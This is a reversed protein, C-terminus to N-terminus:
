KAVEAPADGFQKSNKKMREEFHERAKKWMDDKMPVGCEGKTRCDNQSATAGCGGQHKCDNQSACSHEKATSCTGRGACDNKKDAGQGKCENLGRCAHLDVDAAKAEKRRFFLRGRRRGDNRGARRLHTQSFRPTLHSRAHNEFHRSPTKISFFLRWLIARDEGGPTSILNASPGRNTWQVERVLSEQPPSGDVEGSRGFINRIRPKTFFPVFNTGGRTEAVQEAAAVGGTPSDCAPPTASTSRRRNNTAPARREAAVTTPLTWAAFGIGAHVMQAAAARGFLTPPM